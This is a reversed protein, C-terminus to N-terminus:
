RRPRGLARRLQDAVQRRADRVSARVAALAASTTRRVARWPALVVSRWVARFAHGIPTLVHRYVQVFPWALIRGLLALVRGAAHWAWGIAAGAGRLVAGVARLLPQVLFRGVGMVLAIVGVALASVVPRLVWRWLLVFPVALAKALLGAGAALLGLLVELPRLALARALQGLTSLVASLASGVARLVAAVAGAVAAWIAALGRGATRLASGLGRVLPRLLRDALWGLVAGVAAALPLVLARGIWRLPALFVAVVPRVVAALARGLVGFAKELTTGLARVVGHLADWVARVPLVVCFAVIRAPWLLWAVPEPDAPAPQPPAESEVTAPPAYTTYEQEGATM